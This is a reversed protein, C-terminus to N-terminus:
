KTGRKEPRLTYGGARFGSLPWAVFTSYHSSLLTFFYSGWVTFTRISFRSYHILSSITVHRGFSPTTFASSVNMVVCLSPLCMGAAFSYAPLLV